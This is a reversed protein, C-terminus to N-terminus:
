LLLEIDLKRLGDEEVLFISGEDPKPIDMLWIRDALDHVVLYEIYRKTTVYDAQIGVKGMLFLHDDPSVPINKIPDPQLEGENDYGLVFQFNAPYIYGEFTDNFRCNLDTADSGALVKIPAYNFEDQDLSIQVNELESPISLQSVENSYCNKSRQYGFFLLLLMAPGLLFAFLLQLERKM